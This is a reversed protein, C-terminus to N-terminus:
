DALEGIELIEGKALALFKLRKGFFESIAFLQRQQLDRITNNELDYGVTVHLKRIETFQIATAACPELRDRNGNHIEGLENNAVKRIAGTESFFEGEAGIAKAPTSFSTGGLAFGSSGSCVLQLLNLQENDKQVSGTTCPSRKTANTTPFHTPIRARKFLDLSM